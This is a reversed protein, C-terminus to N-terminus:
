KTFQIKQTAVICDDLQKSIELVAPSTFSGEQFFLQVLKERLAETKRQLDCDNQSLTIACSQLNSM